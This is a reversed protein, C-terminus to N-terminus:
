PLSASRQLGGEHAPRARGAAPHPTLDSRHAEPSQLIRLAKGRRQNIL